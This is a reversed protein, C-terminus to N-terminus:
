WKDEDCSTKRHTPSAVESGNTRLGDRSRPDAPVVAAVSMRLRGSRGHLFLILERTEAAIMAEELLEDQWGLARCWVDSRRTSGNEAEPNAGAM